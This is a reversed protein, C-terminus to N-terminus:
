GGYDETPREETVRFQNKGGLGKTIRKITGIEKELSEKRGDAHEKEQNLRNCMDTFEEEFDKPTLTKGSELKHPKGYLMTKRNFLGFYICTPNLRKDKLIYDSVSTPLKYPVNFLDRRMVQVNCSAIPGLWTISETPVVLIFDGDESRFTKNSSGCNFITYKGKIVPETSYCAPPCGEAVVFGETNYKEYYRYFLGALYLGSFILFWIDWSKWHILTKEWLKRIIFWICFIIILPIFKKLGRKAEESSNFYFLITGGFLFFPVVIQLWYEAFFELPNM